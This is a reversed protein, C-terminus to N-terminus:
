GRGRKLLRDCPNPGADDTGSGLPLIEVGGDPRVTIKGVIVGAAMVAKIYRTLEAQKIVAPRAPM